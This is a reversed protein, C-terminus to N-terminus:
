RVRVVAAIGLHDSCNRRFTRLSVPVMLGAAFRISTGCINQAPLAALRVEARSEDFVFHDYPSAPVGRGNLSTRVNPVAGLRGFGANAALALFAPDTAPLNWDGLLVANESTEPCGPPPAARLRAVINGLEAVEARRAALGQSGSGFTAHFNLFWVLRPVVRSSDRVLTADPPRQITVGAAVFPATDVHCLIALSGAADNVFANGYRELYSSTGKLPGFHVVGGTPQIAAESAQSMVEQFFTLQAFGNGPWRALGRMSANKAVVYNPVARSNQGLHLTNQSVVLVDGWASSPLIALALALAPAIRYLHPALGRQRATRIGASAEAM